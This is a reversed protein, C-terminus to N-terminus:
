LPQCGVLTWTYRTQPAFLLCGLKRREGPALTLVQDVSTTVGPVADLVAVQITVTVQGNTRDNVIYVEFNGAECEGQAETSIHACDPFQAPARGGCIAFAVIACIAAIRPNMNVNDCVPVALDFRLVPITEHSETQQTVRQTV